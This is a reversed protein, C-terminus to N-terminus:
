FPLDEPTEPEPSADPEPKTTFLGKKYQECWLSVSVWETEKTKGMEAILMWVSSKDESDYNGAYKFAEIRGIGLKADAKASKFDTSQGVKLTTGAVSCETKAENLIM